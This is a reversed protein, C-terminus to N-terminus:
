GMFAYLRLLPTSGSMRFRSVLPTGLFKTRPLPRNLLNMQHCPFAIQPRYGSSVATIEYLFTMEYLLIKKIKTVKLGNIVVVLKNTMALIFCNRVSPLKLIESGKKWVDQPTVTM